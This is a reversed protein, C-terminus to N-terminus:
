SVKLIKLISSYKKDYEQAKKSLKGTYIFLAPLPISQANSLLKKLDTESVSKKDKAQTLFTLLGLESNIQVLCNYEKAKFGKEETIKFKNNLLNIIKQVFESKPKQKKPKTKKLVALPNQFEIKKPHTTKPTSSKIKPPTQIIKQKKPKTKKSLLQNVEKKSILISKWYIDENEKFGVSFDRISRLAVRIAPEQESDKLIKEKKLLLFAEAEKPHLFKYFNELQEEQGSIFYLPSGGVKLHSVKIKKEDLLESLFASIFLSGMGIEKSIQIPLSPGKEELVQIIKNHIENQEIM